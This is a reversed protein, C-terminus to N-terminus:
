EEIMHPDIYNDIEATTKLTFEYFLILRLHLETETLEDYILEGFTLNELHNLEEYSAFCISGLERILENKTMRSLRMYKESLIADILEHRNRRPFAHIDYDAYEELIETLDTDSLENLLTFNYDLYNM